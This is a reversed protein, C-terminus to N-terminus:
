KDNLLFITVYIATYPPLAEQDKSMDHDIVARAGRRCDCTASM